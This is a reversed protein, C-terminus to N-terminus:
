ERGGKPKEDGVLTVKFWHRAAEHYICIGEPNMFGPAAASGDMRLRELVADIQAQSFVGRYLVPVVSCCEPVVSEQDLTWKHVNFLAFRKEGLGYKRQIGAGFWEGHHWGPGLKLLEEQHAYAWSAFGHNDTSKGPTIWRSRSGVLFEQGEPGPEGVFIVGSTGDIKESIVMDRNLRPIKPFAVFETM